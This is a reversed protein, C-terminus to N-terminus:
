GLAGFGFIGGETPPRIGIDDEGVLHPQALGDLGDCEHPADQQLSGQFLVARAEDDARQRGRLVPLPFHLAPARLEVAYSKHAVDLRARHGELHPVRPTM